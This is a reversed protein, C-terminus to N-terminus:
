RAPLRNRIPVFLLFALGFVLHVAWSWGLPLSQAWTHHGPYVRMLAPVILPSDLIQSLVGTALGVALVNGFTQLVRNILLGFVLSWLLALAQHLALASLFATSFLSGSLVKGGVTFIALAMILGAAQGTAVAAILDRKLNSKAAPASRPLFRVNTVM